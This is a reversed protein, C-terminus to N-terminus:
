PKVLTTKAEAELGRLEEDCPHHQEMWANAQRYCVNADQKNGQKWHAMALVFPGGAYKGPLKEARELVTIAAKWDGARFHAIGLVNLAAADSPNKANAKKAVDVARQPQRLKADPCNALLYALDRTLGADEKFEAALKDRLLLEQQFALEAEQTRATRTMLVGLAHQHRALQERYEPLDPFEAVLKDLLPRAQVLTQEAEPFKGTATLLEGLQQSAACLLRRYDSLSPFDTALKQTIAIAERYAAEAERARGTDQFLSGLYVQGAALELQYYPQEPFDAALKARADLAARHFREADTFRAMRQYLAALDNRLTALGLRYEPAAPFATAVEESQAIAALYFVEAEELRGLRRLITGLEHRCRALDWQLSTRTPSSEEKEGRTGRGERRALLALAERQIREAEVPQATAALLGALGQYTEALEDQYEPIAPFAGVLNKRLTLARGYFARAEKVRGAGALLRGLNQQSAALAQRYIPVGPYENALRERLALAKRHSSEASPTRGLAAYVIGLGSYSSAQGQRFIPMGPMHASLKQWGDLAQEYALCAARARNTDRLVAALNNRCGALAFEYAPVKPHDKTLGALIDLSQQYAQEAAVPQGLRHLVTGLSNLSGALGDHYDPQKSDERVLAAFLEHAQEYDRQARALRGEDRFLNGRNNHANALEDRHAPDAPVEAALEKLGAIALGFTEEAKAEEGLKYQIDGVRRAARATELRLAASKGRERSFEEYFALAKLLSKRQVQEMYPQQLWWNQAVETYMEDVAKRAQQASRDADDRARVIFISSVMLVVVALVLVAVGAAVLPRHRRAWRSARDLLGPRRAVIPQGAVFRQLDDAFEQATAYRAAAEKASAKLLITELATPIARNLRRPPCPEEFAIKRLLEQRDSGSFAPQLTLMEYLTVGLSYIDARQDVIGHKGLAQEPSMYRLTGVLDGTLTLGAADHQFLALGFDAVWLHGSEEILLNAPKIDRHIIGAQHAQELALAAQIGLNAVSIASQLNGIASKASSPTTQLDAIQLRCDAIAQALTKGEIFKMAYYHVDGESGVAHVPVINPHQLLAAAEAEKKFRQLQRPDLAAAFPLVKLAVHRSLSREEAEYVIGMGGRGIERLIRYGGLEIHGANTAGGEPPAVQM